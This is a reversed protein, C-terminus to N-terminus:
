HKIQNICVIKIFNHRLFNKGIISELKNEKHGNVIYTSISLEYFIILIKNEANVSDFKLEADDIFGKIKSKLPQYFNRDVSKAVIEKDMLRNEEERPNHLTKVEIFFKRGRKKASLDPTKNKEVPVINLDFYNKKLLWDCAKLENIFDWIQRRREQETNSLSKISIYDNNSQIQYQKPKGYCLSSIKNDLEKFNNENEELKFCIKDVQRLIKLSQDSGINVLSAQLWWSYPYLKNLSNSKIIYKNKM